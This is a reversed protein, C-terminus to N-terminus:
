DFSKNEQSALDVLERYEEPSLGDLCYKVPNVPNDNILVEYHLHPATSTGSNGVAGIKQGKKVMDGEKVDFNHLHAYLTKFGYGHDIIIHRGYGAADKNVAIIKGDGSARVATGVPAGFDIGTHMRPIKYVPHMRMGYGSLYPINKDDHGAQVPKISPIANFYNERDMALFLLSDLSSKQVELKTQLASVKQLTGKLTKFSNKYATINELPDHGGIGANWMSSDIPDIGFVLRHVNADKYQLENLVLLMEDVQENIEHYQFKMQELERMLATEKPSPFYENAVFFFILGSIIVSSGFGFFKIVKSKLSSELREYSLTGPNFIYKEKKM